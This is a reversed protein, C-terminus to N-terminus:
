LALSLFLSLGPAVHGHDSKGGQDCKGFTLVKEESFTAIYSFNM